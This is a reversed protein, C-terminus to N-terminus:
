LNVPNPLSRPAVRQYKWIFFGLGLLSKGSTVFSASASDADFGLKGLEWNLTREM